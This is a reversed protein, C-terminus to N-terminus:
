VGWRILEENYSGTVTVNARVKPESVVQQSFGLSCLQPSRMLIFFQGLMCPFSV